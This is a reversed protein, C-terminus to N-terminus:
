DWYNMLDNVDMDNGVYINNWEIQNNIKVFIKYYGNDYNELNIIANGSGNFSFYYDSKNEIESELYVDSSLLSDFDVDQYVKQANWVDTIESDGFVDIRFADIAPNPYMISEESLVNPNGLQMLFSAQSNRIQLGTVLELDVEELVLSTDDDSECSVLAVILVLLIKINKM